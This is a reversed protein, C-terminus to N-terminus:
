EIGEIPCSFPPRCRSRVDLESANKDTNTGVTLNFIHRLRYGQGRFGAKTIGVKPTEAKPLVMKPKKPRNWSVGVHLCGQICVGFFDSVRLSGLRPPPQNRCSSTM